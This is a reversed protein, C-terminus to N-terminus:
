PPRATPTLSLSDTSDSPMSAVSRDVVHFVGGPALLKESAHCLAVRMLQRYRKKDADKLGATRVPAGAFKTSIRTGEFRAGMAPKSDSMAPEAARVVAVLAPGSFATAVTLALSKRFM